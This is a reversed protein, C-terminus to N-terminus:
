ARPPPSNPPTSGAPAPKVPDSPPLIREGPPPKRLVPPPDAEDLAKKFEHEVNGTAKKIERMTRGISRAFEPLQKGGFLFLAIVLIFVLEPTGLYELFALVTENPSIM